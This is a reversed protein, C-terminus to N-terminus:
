TGSTRTSSRRSCSRWRHGTARRRRPRPGEEAIFRALRDVGILKTASGCLVPFVTASAVGDALAHALESSTSRRTPSTGSWSTTTPSSSARSRARRPGHAGGDGDRGPDPGRDGNGDAYHVATDDLLDVVGHFTPKKASRAAALPAVGAGFKDKLEDLTARSRRASATSSTSSCRARSGSSARGHAVRDRDAGRRGRGGVGRVGRPRRRAVRRRRRERLRRLRAHRDRQGQPRRARVARHALSVSIGRAAGGRPRLRHRHHRGRGPGLRPIAGAAFLLAEALSTKGSGGHGVLAVNRIKETPYTKAAVPVGWSAARSRLEDSRGLRRLATALRAAPDPVRSARRLAPPLRIAREVQVTGSRPSVRMSSPRQRAVTSRPSSGTPWPRCRAPIM